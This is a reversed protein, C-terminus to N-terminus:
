RKSAKKRLARRVALDMYWRLFWGGDAHLGYFLKSIMGPVVLFRRRQANRIIRKAVEGPKWVGAQATLAKTVEPKDKNEEALQPTDTDPPYALTVSIGRPKLEMRLSEALGRQAFKSAGYASYGYLGSIGAGSCVFIVRAGRQMKPLFNQLPYLSGFYNTEMMKRFLSDPSNEFERAQAIGANLILWDPAKGFLTEAEVAVSQIASNQTLDASFGTILQSESRCAKRCHEVAQDLRDQRRAILGLSFGKAALQEAIALGIGSSGGTILALPPAHGKESLTM